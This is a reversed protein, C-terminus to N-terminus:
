EYRLAVNPDIHSARWAPIFAAAVGIAFLVIAGAGFSIPDNTSLGFLLGKVFRTAAIGAPIGAGLGILVVVFAERLVMWCVQAGEAGLALRIGIEATRRTIAYSLIGYVGLCALALALVAFVSALRAVLRERFLNSALSETVLRIGMVPLSPAIQRIALRVSQEIQSASGQARIEICVAYEPSQELSYFAMPEVRQHVDSTRADAVVGIVQFVFHGYEFQRGLPSMGPFFEKAASQNIVAWIPKSGSDHADFLRGAVLRIGVTSFYSPNVSTEQIRQNPAPHDKVNIGANRWPGVATESTAFSASQVGPIEKLRDLIQRYVPTLEAVKYHAGQPDIRVSLVHEPKFGLDLNLYNVFTRVFLVAASLLIFSFAIQIAILTRGWPLRMGKIASAQTKMADALPFNVAEVAPLLGFTLGAFVAASGVFLLTSLSMGVDLPMPEGVSAWRVLLRSAGLAVPIAIAGGTISLVAVEAIFHGIIRGTTAGISRRVAIEKRRSVVRALALSALNVCAILLVLGAACMLVTLPASFQHRLSALGRDGADLRIRMALLSRIEVPNQWGKVEREMDRALIQNAIATTRGVMAPNPVRAIISLWRMEPQTLFSRNANGNSNWVNSSYRVDHQAAVPLWVDPMRGPSVGFFRDPAIGVIRVPVDNVTMSQGVTKPDSGFRKAWFAGSLVVPYGGSQNDDSATLVRGMQPKVELVDFFNGTVLQTNIRALDGNAGVTRMTSIASFGAVAAQGGAANQIERLVPYSFTSNSVEGDRIVSFLRLQEAYPVPLSRLIVAHLLNFIAANAGIGLALTLIATAAFGPNRKLSRLAFRVDGAIREWEGFSWQDLSLEKMVSPNGFERRALLRAEEPSMGKAILAEAKEALYNDIEAAIESQHIWRRWFRRM